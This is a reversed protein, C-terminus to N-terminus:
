VTFAVTVLGAAVALRGALRTPSNETNGASRWAAMFWAAYVLLKLVDFFNAWTHHGDIRLFEALLTFATAGLAVPIGGLWWIKWLREEGALARRLFSFHSFHPWTRIENSLKAGQRVTDFNSGPGM